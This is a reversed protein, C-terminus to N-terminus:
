ASGLPEASGLFVELMVCNTVLHRWERRNSGQRHRAALLPALADTVASSLYDVYMTPSAGFSLPPM